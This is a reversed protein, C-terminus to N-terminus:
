IGKSKQCLQGSEQARQDVFACRWGGVTMPEYYTSDLDSGAKRNGM